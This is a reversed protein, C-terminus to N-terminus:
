IKIKISWLDVTEPLVVKLRNALVKSAIKYLVNCLNIPRFRILHTPDTVKPILVLITDNLGEVDEEGRPIRLILTAIEKGCLDCHSQFFHSPYVYGDSGPAKTQAMPFLAFKIEEKTYEETLKNHMIASLKCPVVDIVKEM